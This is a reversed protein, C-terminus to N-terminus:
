APAAQLAKAYTWTQLTTQAGIRRAVKLTAPTDDHCHFHAGPAGLAAIREVFGTLLLLAGPGLRHRHDVIWLDVEPLGDRDKALLLGVVKGGGAPGAELDRAVVSCQAGIATALTARLAQEAAQRSQGFHTAYLAAAAPLDSEGLPSLPWAKAAPTRAHLRQVRERLQALTTATEGYFHLVERLPEFGMRRLFAAPGAEPYATWAHLYPLGWDLTQRQLAQLLQAGLGRRRWAPLVRVLGRFGTRRPDRPQTVLAAAGVIHLPSDALRAVWTDGPLRECALLEPLLALAAAWRDPGGPEIFISM